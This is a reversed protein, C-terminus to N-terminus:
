ESESRISLVMIAPLLVMIGWFNIIILNFLFYLSNHMPDGWIENYFGYFVTAVTSIFWLSIWTIEKWRRKVGFQESTVSGSKPFNLKMWAKEQGYYFIFYASILLVMAGLLELRDSNEPVWIVAWILCIEIIFVGIFTVRRAFPFKWIALMLGLMLILMSIYLLFALITLNGWFGWVEEKYDQYAAFQRANVFVSLTMFFMAFIGIAYLLRMWGSVQEFEIEVTKGTTSPESGV